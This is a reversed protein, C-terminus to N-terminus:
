LVAFTEKKQSHMRPDIGSERIVSCFPLEFINTWAPLLFKTM